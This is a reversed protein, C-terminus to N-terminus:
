KIKEYQKKLENYKKDSVKMEGSRRVSTPVIYFWYKKDENYKLAEFIEKDEQKM